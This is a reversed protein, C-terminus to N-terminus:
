NEGIQTDTKSTLLGSIYKKLVTPNSLRFKVEKENGPIQETVWINANTILLSLGKSTIGEEEHRFIIISTNRSGSQFDNKFLDLIEDFFGNKIYHDNLADQKGDRLLQNAQEFFDAPLRLSFERPKGKGNEPSLQLGDLVAELFIEDNEIGDFAYVGEAFAKRRVYLSNSRQFYVTESQGETLYQSIVISLDPAISPGIHSLLIPHFSVEGESPYTLFDRAILSREGATLLIKIDEEGMDGFLPNPMGLINPSRTLALIAAIEEFTLKISTFLIERTIQEM